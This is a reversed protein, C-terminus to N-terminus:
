RSKDNRPGNRRPQGPGRPRANPPGRFNQRGPRQNNPRQRNPGRLQRRQNIMRQGLAHATNLRQLVGRDRAAEQPPIRYSVASLRGGPGARLQFASAGQTLAGLRNGQLDFVDIQGVHGDADPYLKVTPATTGGGPPVDIVGTTGRIGIAADPTSIKMNGTKAVLSAVFAATGVAVNFAAANGTGNEQYVFENVVIRTDASLSFTTEDDFTIGLASEAGTALTDNKFIPDAVNLMTAAANGRTVTASGQMTSVQGVSDDAPAAALAQAPPQYAPAFYPSAPQYQARATEPWLARWGSLAGALLTIFDRRKM